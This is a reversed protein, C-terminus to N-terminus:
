PEGAERWLRQASKAERIQEVTRDPCHPCDCSGGVVLTKNPYPQEHLQRMNLSVTHKCDLWLIVRQQAAIADVVRTITRTQM